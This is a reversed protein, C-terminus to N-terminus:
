GGTSGPRTPFEFGAVEALVPGLQDAQYDLVRDGIAASAGTPDGLLGNSSIDELMCAVLLQGQLTLYHLRGMVEELRPNEVQASELRVSDPAITMVTSTELKAGHGFPLDFGGKSGGAALDEPMGLAYPALLFVQLGTEARIEVIVQSLLFQQGGHGNLFALKRFGSAAVSRAVDRCFSVLTAPSLSITGASSGHETSVGYALTPLVWVDVSPTLRDVARKFVEDLVLTDTMCPLHAGHQEVAGIPQVVIARDKPLAAIETTSLLALQHHREGGAAM